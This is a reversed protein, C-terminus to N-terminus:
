FLPITSGVGFRVINVADALMTAPTQEVSVVDGPALRLNEEPNRKASRLSAVIGVPGTRATGKRIVIVKDAPKLAVGGARAIAGLLRLERDVPYQYEGPKRVLGLVEIPEPCLREVTVTSGDRLAFPEPPTGSPNALDLCVFEPRRQVADTHRSALQVNSSDAANEGMVALTTGGGSQRIEIKTGADEEFGGAATIAALLHCEGPPLEQVGPEKVAGVVTVRNTRRRELKVAVHPDRYLGRHVCAAAIVKEAQSADAGGLQLPGIEPLLAVGGDGVRVDFEVIEDTSLGAAVLIGLVDGEAILNNDSPPAALRSLDVAQASHVVPAQLEVPLTAASFRHGSACGAIAVLLAIPALIVASRSLKTQPEASNMDLITGEFVVCDRESHTVASGLVISPEACTAVGDVIAHRLLGTSTTSKIM